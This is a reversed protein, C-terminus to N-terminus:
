LKHLMNNQNPWFKKKTGPDTKKKEEFKLVDKATQEYFRILKVLISSFPPKSQKKKIDKERLKHEGLYDGVTFCTM